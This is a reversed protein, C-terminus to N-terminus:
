IRDWQEFVHDVANKEDAPQHLQTTLQWSSADLAPFFTDGEFAANIRTLHVRHVIPMFLQYIEGGGIIFVEKVDFTKSLDLVQDIGNVVHVGAARFNSNRTIVVNQRGPLPKGLSEYTKRGMVVPMGWTLNKFHRLDNPLHWPMRGNLGIAGNSAAAVVFSIRM